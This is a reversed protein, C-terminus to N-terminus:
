DDDDDKGERAEEFAERTEQVLWFLFVFAAIDEAWWWHFLANLALGVLVTAAM